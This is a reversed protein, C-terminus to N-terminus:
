AKKQSNALVPGKRGGAQGGGGGAGFCKKKTGKAEM